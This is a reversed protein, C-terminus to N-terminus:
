DSNLSVLTSISIYCWFIELALLPWARQAVANIGLMSAGVLNLFQYVNSRGKMRGKSLLYYCTIMILLGIWGIIEILM